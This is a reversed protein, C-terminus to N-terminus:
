TFPNARVVNEMEEATRLIVRVERGMHSQLRHELKRRLEEEPIASTFLLNGSAILTRPSGLSLEAAIAKLDDMKLTSVGLLNVGRLLAVYASM